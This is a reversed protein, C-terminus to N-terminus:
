RRYAELDPTFYMIENEKDRDVFVMLDDPWGAIKRLWVVFNLNVWFLNSFTRKAREQQTQNFKLRGLM